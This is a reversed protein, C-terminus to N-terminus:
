TGPSSATGDAEVSQVLSTTARLEEVQEPSLPAAFGNLADRYIRVPTIGYADAVDAPDIGPAVTVIYTPWEDAAVHAAPASVPVPAPAAAAVSVPLAAVAALVAAALPLTARSLRNRM